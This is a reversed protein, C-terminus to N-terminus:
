FLGFVEKTSLTTEVTGTTTSAKGGVKLGAEKEEGKSNKYKNKEAPEFKLLGTEVEKGQPIAEALISGEVTVTPCFFGELAVEAFAKGTPRFVVEIIGKSAGVGEVIENELANTTIKGEKVKCNSPKQVTCGSYHVTESSTGPVGGKIKAGPTEVKTCTIESAVGLVTAKLVQSTEAKSTLEKEQGAELKAGKVKYIFETASAQAVTVAGFAFVLAICVGLTKLGRNRM